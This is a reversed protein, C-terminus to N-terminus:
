MQTATFPESVLGFTEQISLETLVNASDTKWNGPNQLVLYVPPCPSTLGSNKDQTM